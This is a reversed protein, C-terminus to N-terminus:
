RSYQQVSYTEKASPEQNESTHQHLSVKGHYDKSLRMKMKRETQFFCWETDAGDLFKGDLSWMCATYYTNQDTVCDLTSHFSGTGYPHQQTFVKADLNIDYLSVGTFSMNTRLDRPLLQQPVGDPNRVDSTYVERWQQPLENVLQSKMIVDAAARMHRYTGAPANLDDLPLVAAIEEQHLETELSQGDHTQLASVTALTCGETSLTKVFDWCRTVDSLSSAYAAYWPNHKHM